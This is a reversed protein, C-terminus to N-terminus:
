NSDDDTHDALLVAFLSNKPNLQITDLYPREQLFPSHYDVSVGCKAGNNGIKSAYIVMKQFYDFLDHQRTMIFVTTGYTKM